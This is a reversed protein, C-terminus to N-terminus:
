ENESANLIETLVNIVREATEPNDYQRGRLASFAGVVRCQPVFLKKKGDFVKNGLIINCIRHLKDAHIMVAFPKAPNSKNPISVEMVLSKRGTRQM